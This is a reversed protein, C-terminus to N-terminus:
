SRRRHFAHYRLTAPARAVAAGRPPAGAGPRQAARGDGGRLAAGAAAALAGCGRAGLRRARLGRVGGVVVVNEDGHRDRGSM